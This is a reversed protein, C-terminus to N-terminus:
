GGACERHGHMRILEPDGVREVLLLGLTPERLKLHGTADLDRADAFEGPVPEPPLDPTAIM